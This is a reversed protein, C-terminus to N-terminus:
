RGATLKCPLRGGFDRRIAALVLRVGTANTDYAVRRTINKVARFQTFDVHVASVMVLPHVISSETM